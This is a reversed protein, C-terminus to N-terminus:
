YNEESRYKSFIKDVKKKLEEITGDNKISIDSKELKKLLSMQSEIINEAIERSSGDREMVRKIQTERDVYVLIIEDCLNEMGAEFLLPIDFIVTEGTRITKKREDQFKAIVFPHVISNLSDVMEKSSFVLERLKARDLKGNKDLVNKGFEGTIREIIEESNMVERAVIDADVVRIGMKSLIKSVTSKGSAIGGTLGIIM